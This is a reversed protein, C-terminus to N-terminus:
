AQKPLESVLYEELDAWFDETQMEDSRLSRMFAEACNQSDETWMQLAAIESFGNGKLKAVVKMKVSSADTGDFSEEVSKWQARPLFHLMSQYPQHLKGELKAKENTLILIQREAEAMAKKGPSKGYTEHLLWELQTETLDSASAARWHLLSAESAEEVLQLVPPLPSSVALVMDPTLRKFPNEPHRGSRREAMLKKAFVFTKVILSDRRSSAM